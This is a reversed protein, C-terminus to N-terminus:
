RRMPLGGRMTQRTSRGRMPVAPRASEESTGTGTSPVGSANMSTRSGRHGISDDAGHEDELEDDDFLDDDARDNRGALTGDDDDDGGGDGEGVFGLEEDRSVDYPPAARMIKDLRTDRNSKVYVSESYESSFDEIVEVPARM